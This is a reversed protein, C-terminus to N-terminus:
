AAVARPAGAAVVDAFLREYRAAIARWAYDRSREAGRREMEGRLGPDSLIRVLANPLADDDVLVGYAGDALVERAGPNQGTAV